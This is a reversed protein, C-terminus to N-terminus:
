KRSLIVDELSGYILYQPSAISTIVSPVEVVRRSSGLIGELKKNVGASPVVLVVVDAPLVRGALVDEQYIKDVVGRAENPGECCVLFHSRGRVIGHWIPERVGGDSNDKDPFRHGVPEIDPAGM